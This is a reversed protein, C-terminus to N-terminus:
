SFRTTGKVVCYLFEFAVESSYIIKYQLTLVDAARWKVGGAVVLVAQPLIIHERGITKVQSHIIVFM